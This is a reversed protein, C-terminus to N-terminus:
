SGSKKLTDRVVAVLEQLSLNSKIFYAAAGLNLAQKVDTEQGLNSTVVVPIGATAPAAKLRRLVEFGQLKPMILDLLVIAPKVAEVQRLAEEGDGAIAVTFGAQRLSAEAARRLFRDDEVLLVTPNGDTM